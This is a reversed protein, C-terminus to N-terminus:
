YEAALMITLVRTTVSPAAPNASGFRMDADYYDIKFFFRQGAIKITGFDHEGHPDNDQEFREFQRVQQLLDRKVEPALAEVGPTLVVTGGSFTRRFEDNLERITAVQTDKGTMAM